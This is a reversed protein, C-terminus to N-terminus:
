GRNYTVSEPKVKNLIETYIYDRYDPLKNANVLRNEIAWNSQEELSTLITQDLFLDFNYDGWESILSLKNIDLRKSVIDISELPHEKIFQNGREVAKLFKILTDPNNKIFDKRSIFYFNENLFNKSPFVRVDEGMVKKTDEIYPEWASLADVQGDVLSKTFDTAKINVFEVDSIKLNYANLFKGLFYHGTTGKVSGVKKGKLDVLNNIGRDERVIIKNFNSNKGFGSFIAYDKSSFSKYVVPLNAPAVIEPSGEDLMETLAIVGSGLDKIEVDLGEEKFFGKSEAILLPTVYPNSVSIGITIKARNGLTTEETNAYLFYAGIIIGLIVFIVLGIRLKDIAINKM